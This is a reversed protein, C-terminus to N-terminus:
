LSSDYQKFNKLYDLLPKLDADHIQSNYFSFGMGSNTYIVAGRKKIKVVRINSTEINTSWFLRTLTITDEKVEISKIYSFVSLLTFTLIGAVISVIIDSTNKDTVLAVGIPAGFAGALMAILNKKNGRFVMLTIRGLGTYHIITNNKSFCNYCIFVESIM